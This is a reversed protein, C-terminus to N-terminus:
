FYTITINDIQNMERVTYPIEWISHHLGAARLIGEIYLNKLRYTNRYIFTKLKNDWCLNMFSLVFLIQFIM